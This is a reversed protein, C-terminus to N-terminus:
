AIQSVTNKELVFFAYTNYKDCVSIAWLTSVKHYVSVVYESNVGHYLQLHMWKAYCVIVLSYTTSYVTEWDIWQCVLRGWKLNM